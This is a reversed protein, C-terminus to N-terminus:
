DTTSEISLGRFVDRPQRMWLLQGLPIPRPLRTQLTIRKPNQCFVTLSQWVAQVGPNKETQSQRRLHNLLTERIQDPPRQHARAAAGLARQYLGRDEYTISGQVLKVPPLVLMWHLPNALAMSVGDERVNDLQMSLTLGGAAAMELALDLAWEEKDVGRRELQLHMDGALAPYGLREVSQKLPAMLPHRTELRVGYLTVDLAQPLHDGPRFRRIHIMRMPIADTAGAFLLSADQIKCQLSFYPIALRAYRIGTCDPITQVTKQLQRAITQHLVVRFLGFLLVAAIIVIMAMKFRSFRTTIMAAM